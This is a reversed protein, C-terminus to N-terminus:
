GIGKNGDVTVESAQSAYSGTEEILFAVAVAEVLTVATTIPSELSMRGNVSKVAMTGKFASTAVVAVVALLAVLAVVAALVTVIGTVVAISSTGVMM